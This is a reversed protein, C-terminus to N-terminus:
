KLLFCSVVGGLFGVWVTAAFVAGGPGGLFGVLAGLLTGVLLGLLMGMAVVALYAIGSLDIM